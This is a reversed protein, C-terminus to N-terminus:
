CVRTFWGTSSSFSSIEIDVSLCESTVITPTHVPRRVLRWESAWTGVKARRGSLHDGKSKSRGHYLTPRLALYPTQNLFQVLSGKFLYVERIIFRYVHFWKIREKKLRGRVQARRRKQVTCGFQDEQVHDCGEPFARSRLREPLFSLLCLIIQRYM